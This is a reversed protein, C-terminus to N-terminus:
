IASHSGRAIHQGGSKCLKQGIGIFKNFIQVPKINRANLDFLFFRDFATDCTSMNRDRDVTHFFGFFHVLVTMMVMMVMFVIVVVLMLVVMMMVMLVTVMVLMFVVVFVRMVVMVATHMIDLM